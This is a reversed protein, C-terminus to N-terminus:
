QARGLGGSRLGEVDARLLKWPVATSGSSSLRFQYVNFVRPINISKELLAKNATDSFTFTDNVGVFNQGWGVKDQIYVTGSSLPAWYFDARHGKALEKPAETAYYFPSDYYERIARGADANTTDIWHCFGDRKVALLIESNGSQAMVAANYLTNSSWYWALTRLNLNVCHTTDASPSIALWLKYVQKVTDLEAFSRNLYTDEIQALSLNLLQNNQEIPDSVIRAENGDFVRVRRDWCLCIIVEGLDPILVKKITKQIAGWSSIVEQVEFDPNGGVHSVRFVKERTFIYLKKNLIASGTIEDDASSPLSFTDTWPDTTFSNNDAYAIGRPDEEWNMLMTFGQFDTAYKAAQASNAALTTFFTGVSGPWILVSDRSESTAILHSKSHVFSQYSLSRTSAVTVFTMARNSSASIGTGAAVVVWRLASGAGFDYMGWGANSAGQDYQNGNGSNYLDSRESASLVKGYVITTDIAGSLFVGTGADVAGVVFPASGARMGSAYSATTASLNVSVGIRDNTADHWAVANYWTGTGIAGFSTATVEGTHIKGSSSVRWVVRSSANTSNVFLWYEYNTSGSDVNLVNLPYTLGAGGNYIQTKEIATLVRKVYFSEDIAGDLFSGVTGTGEAAMMFQGGRDAPAVGATATSNIVALNNVQINTTNATADHWACIFYWTNLAPAGLAEADVIANAAGASASIFFRFRDVSQNYLLCWERDTGYGKAAIFAQAAKTHLRVWGAWTFDIDGTSLSANDNIYFAESNARVFFAASNILGNTATVTNYDVLTNTSYSDARNGSTENLNWFSVFSATSFQALGMDRKSILTMQDSAGMTNSLRFWTSVAFDVDGTLVQTTSSILLYESNAAVFLAANSIVGSTSAVTNNDVLTLGPSNYLDVRNGSVENMNWVARLLTSLSGGADPLFGTAASSIIAVTNLTTVGYRKAVSKDIGFEVDLANPTQDPELAFFNPLSNVGGGLDPSGLPQVNKLM